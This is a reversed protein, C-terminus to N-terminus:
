PTLIRPLTLIRQCIIKATCSSVNWTAFYASLSINHALAVARLKSVPPRLTPMDCAIDLLCERPPSPQPERRLGSQRVLAPKPSPRPLPARPARSLSLVPFARSSTQAAELAWSIRAKAAGAALARRARAQVTTRARSTRNPGAAHLCAARVSRPSRPRGAHQADALANHGPQPRPRVSSGLEMRTRPSSPWMTHTGTRANQRNHLPRVTSLVLTPTANQASHKSTLKNLLGGHEPTVVLLLDDLLAVFPHTARRPPSM